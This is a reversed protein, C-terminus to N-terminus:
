MRDPKSLGLLDLCLSLTNKTVFVLLLRTASVDPSNADVIKHSNYYSHFVQALDCTYNALLHTQHTNAISILIYRLSCIKKLIEIEDQDFSLEMGAMDMENITKNILKKVFETLSPVELAKSLISKM